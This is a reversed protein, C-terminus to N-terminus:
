KERKASTKVKVFAENIVQRFDINIHLISIYFEQVLNPSLTISLSLPCKFTWVFCHDVGYFVVSFKFVLAMICILCNQKNRGFLFSCIGQM